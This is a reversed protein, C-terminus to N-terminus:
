EYASLYKPKNVNRGSRTRYPLPNDVASSTPLASAPTAQIEPESSPTPPMQVSEPVQESQTSTNFDSNATSLVPNIERREEGTRQIHRRNRVFIGQKTRVHYSRANYDASVVEGPEKWYKEKDTKLRVYDGVGLLSLTRVGQHRNFNQAMRTKYNEDQTRIRAFDPWKPALTRPHVPVNTRMKRGMILEAPSAGTASIPTSRYAMLAVFIDPQKLIRKAVKVASEAEGNGQPYHPSTFRQNFGYEAAFKRFAASSFQGGNDSVLEYPIGWRAFINKMKGIVHDSSLKDLRVIELYRSYYDTVVLYHTGQLECLDAAIKQWPGEPLPTPKLPESRQAPRNQNCFQCSRVIHDIDRSIGPWWVTSNARDRCKSLGLHGAHLSQLMDARLGEPIVIRDRYLLLGDLISYDYRSAFYPRVEAKVSLEKDPWGYHTFNMAEQIASDSSIADRIEDLKRDSIPKTSLVSGVYAEIDETDTSEAPVHLPSRSLTDPVVLQKGPVHEAVANFRRLRM